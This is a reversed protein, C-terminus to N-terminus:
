DCNPVGLFCPMQDLVLGFWLWVLFALFVVRLVLAIPKALVNNGERVNRVIPTVTFSFLTPLLWLMIFLIIRPFDEHFNWRNVRNTLELLMFPLTTLFGIIAPIRLPAGRLIVGVPLLLFAVTVIIEPNLSLPWFDQSVGIINFLFLIAAPLCLIFSIVATLRPNSLMIKMDDGEKFLLVHERVIGITTEVFMWLVFGSGGDETQREKYLDNFTQEMSEGLQERFGRPYLALLKKYLTHVIEQEYM